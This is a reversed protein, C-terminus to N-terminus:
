NSMQEKAVQKRIDLTRISVRKTSLFIIHTKNIIVVLESPDVQKTMFRFKRFIEKLKMFKNLTHQISFGNNNVAPTPFVLFEIGKESGNPNRV